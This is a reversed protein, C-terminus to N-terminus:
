KEVKKQVLMASNRYVAKNIELVQRADADISTKREIQGVTGIYQEGTMRMNRASKLVAYEKDDGDYRVRLPTARIDNIDGVQVFAWEGSDLYIKLNPFPCQTEDSYM